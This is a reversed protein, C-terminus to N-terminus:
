LAAIVLRIIPVVHDQNVEVLGRDFADGGRADLGAVGLIRAVDDHVGRAEIRDGSRKILDINAPTPPRVSLSLHVSRAACRIEAQLTGAEGVQERNDARM